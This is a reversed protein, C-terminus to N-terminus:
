KFLVCMWYLFILSICKYSKWFKLLKLLFLGLNLTPNGYFICFIKPYKWRDHAIQKHNKKLIFLNKCNTETIKLNKKYFSSFNQLVRVGYLIFWLKFYAIKRKKRHNLMMNMHFIPM